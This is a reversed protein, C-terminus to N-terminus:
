GNSGLALCALLSRAEINLYNGYMMLINIQGLTMWHYNPSEDIVTEPPAELVLYRNQYHYFRGGEESQISSHRVGSQQLEELLDLYRPGATKEQEVAGSLYQITPALEVQNWLGPEMRAQVLFHLVGRIRQTVFALVGMSSPKVIPQSWTRVERSTARATIGIVSFYDGDDRRIGGDHHAWGAVSSLPVPDAVVEVTARIEALWSIVEEITHMGDNLVSSAMVAEDFTRPSGWIRLGCESAEDIRSILPIASIVTRADMNVVNDCELLRKIQGLTLWCFDEHVPVDQETIVIVNRNRKRLFFLGQESQLQDTLVRGHSRNTFYELYRPRTGGHVQTYNSRTAQVTPSLQPGNVNGAETKAQLLFHLIGDFRKAIIGLIGVEPQSIVPQNFTSPEPYDSHGKLGHISFFKGSDHGLDGTRPDFHWGPMEKLPIATVEFQQAIRREELWAAVDLTAIFQGHSTLLSGLTGAGPGKVTGRALSGTEVM